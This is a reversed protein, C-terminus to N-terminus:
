NRTLETLQHQQEKAPPNRAHTDPTLAVECLVYVFPDVDKPPAHEPRCIAVTREGGVSKPRAHLANSSAPAAAAAAAFSGSLVAQSPSPVTLHELPQEEGGTKRSKPARARRARTGM